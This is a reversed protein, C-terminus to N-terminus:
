TQFSNRMQQNELCRKLKNYMELDAMIKQSAAGPHLSPESAGTEHFRQYTGPSVNKTFRRYGQKLETQLHHDQM